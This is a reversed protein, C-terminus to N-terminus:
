AILRMQIYKSEKKILIGAGIIRIDITFSFIFYNPCVFHSSHSGFFFLYFELSVKVANNTCFIM